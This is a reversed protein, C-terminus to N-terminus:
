DNDESDEGDEDDNLKEEARAVLKDLHAEFELATLEDIGEDTLELEKDLFGAKVLIRTKRDLLRKAFASLSMSEKKSEQSLQRLSEVMERAMQAAIDDLQRMTTLGAPRPFHFLHTHRSAPIVADTATEERTGVVLGGTVWRFVILTKCRRCVFEGNHGVILIVDLSCTICPIRMQKETVEAQEFEHM